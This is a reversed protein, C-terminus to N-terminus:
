KPWAVVEVDCGGEGEKLWVFIRSEVVCVESGACSTSTSRTHARDWRFGNYRRRWGLSRQM